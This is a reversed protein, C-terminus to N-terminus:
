GISRRSRVTQVKGPKVGMEMMQNRAMTASGKCGYFHYKGNAYIKFKAKAKVNNCCGDGGKAVAKTATSKCCAMKGEAKMMMRQAEAMFADEGISASMKSGCCSQKEVKAEVKACCSKESQAFAFACSAVALISLLIKMENSVEQLQM